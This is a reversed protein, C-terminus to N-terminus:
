YKFHNIILEMTNKKFNDVLKIKKKLFIVNKFKNLVVIVIKLSEIMEYMRLLYRDFSDGNSTVYSSFNIYNYNNYTTYINLRIDRKIGVCRAMVGTLGHNLANQYNYMGIGVLRTKWVKNNTLVNHIENLTIFCNISFNLIDISIKYNLLKNFIIPKYLSTHMRAGSLREYFEM